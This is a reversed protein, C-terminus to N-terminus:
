IDTTWGLIKAVGGSKSKEMKDLQINTLRCRIGFGVRSVIYHTASVKNEFAVKSNADTYKNKIREEYGDWKELENRYFDAMDESEVARSKIEDFFSDAVHKYYELTEKSMIFVIFFGLIFM